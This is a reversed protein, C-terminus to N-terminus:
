SRTELDVVEADVLDAGVHSIKGETGEGPHGSGVRGKRDIADDGYEAVVDGDVPIVDDGEAGADHADMEGQEGRRDIRAPEDDDFVIRDEGRRSQQPRQHLM